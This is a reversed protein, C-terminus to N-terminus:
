GGGPRTGISEQPGIACVIALDRRLYDWCDVQAVDGVQLRLDRGSGCEADGQAGPRHGPGARSARRM